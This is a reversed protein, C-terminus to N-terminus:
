YNSHLYLSEKTPVALVLCEAENILENAFPKILNEFLNSGHHVNTAIVDADNEKAYEILAVIESKASLVVSDVKLNTNKKIFNVTQRVFANVRSQLLSYGKEKIGVVLIEANFLNAMGIVAPVKQRSAKNSNIPLVVKCIGRWKREPRVTLVPVPASHILRYANSGIYKDEFGSAGHTGMVIMTTDDYKAQNSVEKFVNGERIKYDFTGGPALYEKKFDAIIGKMWGELDVNLIAEADKAVYRYTFKKTKVHIIRLNAKLKNAVEVGFRLANISNESFDIPVLIRNM